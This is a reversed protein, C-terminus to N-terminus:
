CGGNEREWQLMEEYSRRVTDTNPKKGTQKKGGKQNREWYRVGSRWDALPTGNSKKWKQSNYYNWFADPDVCSNRERCFQRVEELTPINNPTNNTNDINTNNPLSQKSGGTLSQEIGQEVKNLVGNFETAYYEVFKVGNIVNENRRIFGKECLSKLNKLIGQKTSNCWDALYQLSGSFSQQGDQSFGYIIAFILLENGKLKLENVMWGSVTIYNQNKVKSM